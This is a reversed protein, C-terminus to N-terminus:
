PLYTIVKAIYDQLWKEKESHGKLVDAIESDLWTEAAQIAADRIQINDSQLGSRVLETRWEPSGVHEKQRGMCCFVSYAFDPEASNLAIKRLRELVHSKEPTKLAQEIVQQAPHSICDEIPEEAFLAYLGHELREAFKSDM